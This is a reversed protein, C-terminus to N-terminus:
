GSFSLPHHGERRAADNIRQLNTETIETQMAEKFGEQTGIDNVAGYMLDCFNDLELQKVVDFVIIGRM